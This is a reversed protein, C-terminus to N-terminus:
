QPVTMKELELFKITEKRSQELVKDGREVWDKFQQDDRVSDFQLDIKVYANLASFRLWGNRNEFEKMWYNAKEKEGLYSYIGALDYLMAIDRGKLGGIKENIEIQRQIMEMGKEEQGLSILVYGYRHSNRMSHLSNFDETEIQKNAKEYYELAKENEGERVDNARGFVQGVGRSM